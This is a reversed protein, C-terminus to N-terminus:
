QLLHSIIRRRGLNNKINKKDSLQHLFRKIKGRINVSGVYASYEKKFNQAKLKIQIKFMKKIKTLGRGGGCLTKEAGGPYM